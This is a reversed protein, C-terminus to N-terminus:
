SVHMANRMYTLSLTYGKTSARSLFTVPAVRVSIKSWVSLFPRM